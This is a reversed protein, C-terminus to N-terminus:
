AAMQLENLLLAMEKRVAEYRQDLVTTTLPQLRREGSITAALLPKLVKDRLVSLATIARLGDSTPEYRRSKGLKTVLSKGRLKKLDYAAQTPGYAKSSQGIQRCVESALDSASFGKSKPSLAVIAAMVARMRPKHFDVGGVRCAGVQSPTPLSEWTEDALFPTDVGRLANLFRSLIETLRDVITPFKEIIRGCNLDRANHVTAEFRLTREGKTYGKLTLAGFHLRFVTLNHKPTEVVIEEYVAAKRAHHIRPRQKRGLITKIQPVGLYSRTRDIVSDFLQEMQMGSRFHLNRSYELQYVSFNYRFGTREQEESSLGFCLCASYIWRDCVQSLRGIADTHRLADAVLALDSSDKIETFCNGEKSFSRGAKRLQCAAYEHGNLIVMSQFPPHGCIRIIVHGWDPDNIHFHYHNVYSPSKRHYLKIYGNEGRKVKWIQAPAKSAFVMFVGAVTPNSGLYEEAIDHKRQGSEAYILPIGRSESFATLRRSFRGAMRILHTEDLQDDSGYLNRWWCRFGGPNHAMTFYGNLVIRDVCDYKGVLFDQYRTTFEDLTAEM